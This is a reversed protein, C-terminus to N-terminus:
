ETGINIALHYSCSYYKFNLPNKGIEVSFLIKVIM